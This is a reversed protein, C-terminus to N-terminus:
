IYVDKSIKMLARYIRLRSTCARVLLNWETDCTKLEWALREPYMLDPYQSLHNLYPTPLWALFGIIGADKEIGSRSFLSERSFYLGQHNVHGLLWHGLEHGLCLTLLDPQQFPNYLTIRKGKPTIFSFAGDITTDVVAEVGILEMFVVIDDPSLFNRNFFPFQKEIQKIVKFLM